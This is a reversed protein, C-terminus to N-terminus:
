SKVSLRRGEGADLCSDSINERRVGSLVRPPAVLDQLGEAAVGKGVVDEGHDSVRHLILEQHILHHKRPDMAGERGLKLVDNSHRVISSV